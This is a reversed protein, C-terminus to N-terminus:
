EGETLPHTTILTTLDSPLSALLIIIYLDSPLSTILITAVKYLFLHEKMMLHVFTCPLM